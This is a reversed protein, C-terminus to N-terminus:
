IRQFYVHFNRAAMIDRLSTRARYNYAPNRLIRRREAREGSSFPLLEFLQRFAGLVSYLITFPSRLVALGIASLWATVRNGSLLDVKRYKIDIPPLVLQATEICISRGRQMIRLMYSFVLEGSWDTIMYWRYCRARPDSHFWFRGLTANDVKTNPPAFKDPLIAQLGQPDTGSPRLDVGSVFLARLATNKSLAARAKRSYIPTDTARSRCREVDAGRAVKNDAFQLEDFDVLTLYAYDSQLVALEASHHVTARVFACRDTSPDDAACPVRGAGALDREVLPTIDQDARPM